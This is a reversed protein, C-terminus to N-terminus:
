KLTVVCSYYSHTFTFKKGSLRNKILNKRENRSKFDSLQSFFMISVPITLLKTSIVVQYGHQIGSIVLTIGKPLPNGPHLSGSAAELMEADTGRWTPTRQGIRVQASRSLQKFFEVMLKAGM